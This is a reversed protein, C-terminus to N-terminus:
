TYQGLVFRWDNCRMWHGKPYEFETEGLLDFGLKRCVANSPVNDVSPFAHMASRRRAARSVGILMQMANSAIQRGQFEPVVGWGTEYVREGKWERDWFGVSGVPVEGVVVKFMRGEETQAAIYRQLRKELQEPAEPGGLHETMNPANLEVLLPMDDQTWPELQIM